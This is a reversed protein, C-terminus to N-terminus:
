TKSLANELFMGRLSEDRFLEAIENIMARAADRQANADDDRGLERLVQSAGARAQWVAPRMQMESAIKEARAFHELAIGPEGRAISVRADALALEPELHSMGRARAYVCAASVFKLADDLQHRALAVYGAGLLFQARVMLGMMTPYNLGKQFFEDARELNGSMLACFGIDAWATASFSAIFANDMVRLVQSHLDLAKDAFTPSIELLTTGLAGLGLTDMGPYSMKGAASSQEFHRTANEYDGRLRAITGLMYNGETLALTSGIRAAIAVGQEGFARATDLEGKRIHIFAYVGALLEAQHLRDGIEECIQMAEQAKQWAEDFKTIYMLTNATHTTGFAMQEKVNLERGVEVSEGLYRIAGDFDGSSTCIGCRVTFMEALGTRDNAARAIKESERLNTEVTPFDGVIMQVMAFKNLASVQMATDTHARAFELMAQYNQLVRPVDGILLLANGLGEYARRAHTVDKQAHAIEVARAFYGIAEQTSYERAARAGAQVLYPLARAPEQAELFHRAIDYIREPDLRELCEAARRHLDRRKSLLVSAYAAEQTLAHKFLWTVDPARSKERVLERRQLNVLAGDLTQPADLIETLVGRQFERGIVSATQAARKSDDDLRDLRASIVGALTDPIAITAIERTARWHGNDRVVLKADLLSRIVEEVFFPNGEAKKLILARVQEPLDEIHLLNGVLTRAQTEDLPELAIPTYRHAYDRAAIEHFHWSPEQRQPRFAAILLLPKSETLSMVQDLLDLSTADAWHLDEFVLVTPADSALQEFLARAAQFIAGRLQPPELYKVREVDDGRPAIGLMTALFPAGDDARAKIKAYKRADDEEARVDFLKTLLDIFPAYPTNTEYSLSRGELWKLNRIESQLNEESIQFRFDSIQKRVEAMLRSKGLGADGMLSIIAGHGQHLEALRARLTQMERERGVLPSDLGEIGRASTAITKRALVRFVPVLESKGKVQIADRAELDFAHKVARATQATILITNPEAASQMRAALNVTDGIALYEVHLDSGINGVVVLGTNLGVRMQLHDVQQRSQLEHAYAHIANQIELAANIAREADDEHTIPAGFFALVGDGLLQAITGEYRYVAASVRQHAGAVIEGWDEPDLKEALATSGVIDTFLVTVLKREGAIQASATRIKEKIATPAAQQLDNLRTAPAAILNFGCNRCFKVNAAVPKGCNPCARELANGCNECFKSESPNDYACNSCKM